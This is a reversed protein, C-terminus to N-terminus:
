CYTEMVSQLVNQRSFRVNHKRRGPDRNKDITAEPMSARPVAYTRLRVSLEPISFYFGIFLPVLTHILQKFFTAPADDTNPLM